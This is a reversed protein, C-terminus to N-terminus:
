RNGIAGLQGVPVGVAVSKVTVPPLPGPMPGVQIMPSGYRFVTVMDGVKVERFIQGMIPVRTEVNVDCWHISVDRPMGDAEVQITV